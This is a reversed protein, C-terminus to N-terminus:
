RASDFVGFYRQCGFLELAVIVELNMCGRLFGSLVLPFITMDKDGGLDMYLGVCKLKPHPHSVHVLRDVAATDVTSNGHCFKIGM